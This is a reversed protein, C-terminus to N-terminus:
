PPQLNDNQQTPTCFFTHIDPTNMTAQKKAAKLQQNFYKYGKQVWWQLWPTPLDVICELPQWYLAEQAEPPIQHCLDYQTMAAQKYNPLNLQSALHHLHQNCLKWTDIIYMWIAQIISTMVQTGSQAMTPHITDIAKAWAALIQGQYLQDWGLHTQLWLPPCLQPLVDPMIDPYETDNHILVLCLWVTTLIHLHLKLTQTMQTLSKLMRFLEAWAPHACELFHWENEQEHQCSPCLASEQHPHAKFHM